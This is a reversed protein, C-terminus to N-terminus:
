SKVGERPQYQRVRFRCQPQEFRFERAEDLAIERTNFMAYARWQDFSPGGKPAIVEVIWVSRIKTEIPAEAGGWTTTWASM